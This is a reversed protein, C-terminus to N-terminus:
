IHEARIRRALLTLLYRSAGQLGVWTDYSQKTVAVFSIAVNFKSLAEEVALRLSASNGPMNALIGLSLHDHIVSQGIDLIDVDQQGLLRTIAATIGPEDAGAVSILVLENM